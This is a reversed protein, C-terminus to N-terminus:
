IRIRRFHHFLIYYNIIILRKLFLMSLSLLHKCLSSEDLTCFNWISICYETFNSFNQDIKESRLKALALAVYLFDVPDVDVYDLVARIPLADDEEAKSNKKIKFYSKYINYVDSETMHLRRFLNNHDTVSKDYKYADHVRNSFLNGM